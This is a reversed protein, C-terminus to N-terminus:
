QDLPAEASPLPKRLIHNLGFDTERVDSYGLKADDPHFQRVGIAV